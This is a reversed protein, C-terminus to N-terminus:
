WQITMSWQSYYSAHSWGGNQCWLISSYHLLLIQHWLAVIKEDCDITLDYVLWQAAMSIKMTLFLCNVTMFNTIDYSNTQSLDVSYWLGVSTIDYDTTIDCLKGQAMM